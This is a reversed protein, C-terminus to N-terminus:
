AVCIPRWTEPVDTVLYATAQSLWGSNELIGIATNCLGCLLGRVRGTKHNHDVVLKIGNSEYSIDGENTTTDFAIGYQLGSCGGGQVFIRLTDTEPKESSAKILDNIFKVAEPTVTVPTEASM